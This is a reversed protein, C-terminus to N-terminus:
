RIMKQKNVIYVGKQLDELSATGKRVVRGHIDYVDIPAYRQPSLLSTAQEETVEFKTAVDPASKDFANETVFRINEASLVHTGAFLSTSGDLSLTFIPGEADTMASIDKSYGIVRYVGDSVWHGSIAFTNETRYSLTLATDGDRLVFSTPIIFDMAFAIYPTPNVLSVEVDWGDATVSVGLAVEDLTSRTHLPTGSGYKNSPPLLTHYDDIDYDPVDNADDTEADDDVCVVKRRSRVQSAHMDETLLSVWTLDSLSIEGNGDADAQELSLDNPFVGCLLLLMYDVDLEDVAADGNLNGYAFPEPADIAYPTLRGKIYQARQMLWAKMTAVNTDYNYGDGWVYSNNEFSSRAYAYYDDVYDVLETLHRDFFEEWLRYYRYKIWESSRLIDSYFRNGPKGSLYSFLDRDAGSTCYRSTGEYGYAWDFDWAPGFIYRSKMHNMNERSLFSSKPHGLESNLVLDNVLMYRVLMDIDVLREYNNKLYVATEFRNFEDCVGNYDLFTEDEGFEPSKINVPLAYAYSTFQGSEYYSDLEFLASQSEDDYDVNNNALGVKQTFIYSGRYEGNMYLDVPIVDNATQLGVMRAIKHAVPNSLLSGTQRQAILNWNKGKKMGFPKVSEDFKLRYPNKPNSNSSPTSWSSNGRGKIKVPSEFDFDDWVGNGRFTIEANLYYDKSSVIQGGEVNIDIRPVASAYDTMWDIHVPVERGMPVMSYTYIAPQVLEAEGEYYVEYLRFESLCLYNKYGVEVATFRLHRYSGGLDITPSMYDVGSGYTPLGDEEDISLIHVWHEGDNSAEIKWEYINYKTADTRGQYYFQFETLSRPLEVSVYVQKSLDVSYIPDQSWTSHFFTNPKGDIMMALGENTRSTPANTSFMNEELPIEEVGIEPRSWVEESVKEVSLRKYNPNGLTYVVDGAFRLRSLGSVQEKGDVYAIASPTDMSFTPTLYKGIGDVSAWVADSTVAAEVDRYLQDNLKDDLKFSTFQPYIPAIEDVALVYETSWSVISDNKLVFSYQEKNSAVEKVFNKPYGWVRGDNFHVYYMGNDQSSCITALLLLVVCFLFRRRM